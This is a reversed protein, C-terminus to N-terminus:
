VMRDTIMLVLEPYRHPGPEVLEVPIGFLRRDVGADIATSLAPDVLLARWDADTFRWRWQDREYTTAPEAHVAAVYARWLAVPDPRTPRVATADPGRHGDGDAPARHRPPYM